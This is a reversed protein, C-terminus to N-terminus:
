YLTKPQLSKKVESIYILTKNNQDKFKHILYSKDEEIFPLTSNNESSVTRISNPYNSLDIDHESLLLMDLTEEKTDGFVFNNISQATHPKAVLFACIVLLSALTTGYIYHLSLGNKKDFYKQKLEYKLRVSFPGPLFEPKEVNCLYKDIHM